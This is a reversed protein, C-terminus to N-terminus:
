TDFVEATRNAPGRKRLESRGNIFDQVLEDDWARIQDPSGDAVFDGDYLMVIRDAIQYASVMDHTVVISTVSLEKQLREILLNIEDARIPDLGTTPEDYLIVRPKLAIARALAIRKKQGGSLEAPMKHQNDQMDVLDLVEACRARQASLPMKTHEVLPFCINQEVDLSDFLASLQFLFGFQTRIPELQSEPLDDIRQGDFWVTGSDPDLLRVMHKLMVSKGCGSPGIVVTTKGQEIALDVGTLVRQSGFSKHVDRLEVVAAGGAPEQPAINTEAQTM